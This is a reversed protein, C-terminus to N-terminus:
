RYYQKNDELADSLICLVTQEVRWIWSVLNKLKRHNGALTLEEAFNAAIRQFQRGCNKMLIASTTM